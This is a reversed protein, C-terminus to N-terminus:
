TLEEQDGGKILWQGDRGIVGADVQEDPWLDRPGRGTRAVPRNPFYCCAPESLPLPLLDNRPYWGQPLKKLKIGNEVRRAWRAGVRTSRTVTTSRTDVVV